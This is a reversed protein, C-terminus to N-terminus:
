LEEKEAASKKSKKGKKKKKKKGEAPPPSPADYGKEKCSEPCNPKMFEADAVVLHSSM